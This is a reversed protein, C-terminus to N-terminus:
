LVEAPAGREPEVEPAFLAIAVAPIYLLGTWWIASAPGGAYGSIAGGFLVGVGAVVRGTNYCVGAGLTRVLTPFLMPLYMPFVGFLGLSFFATAGMVLGASGLTLPQRFGILFSAGAGIFLLILARRHGIARALYTAFFNGAINVTTFLFTLRMVLGDVRPKPWDKVEPIARAAQPGFYLFAWVTTLAMTTLGLTIFTTRRLGPRLLEGASPVHQREAASKWAAPEPVNRRVWITAFAPLVGVLFVWRPPLDQFLGITGAALMMGVMYGSQLTASAWARHRPHLTEAVLAAGAAWEGGIGLAAIFRFILLHWWAQSLSSLGTFLAYVLITLTLTRARGLRDGLRGFFAGGVAWGFLFFAQIIAAKVAVEPDSTPKGLLEAVFPGAVLVYLYGDLGDFAWGLWAAIFAHRVAPTGPPTSV